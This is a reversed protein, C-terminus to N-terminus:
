PSKEDSNDTKQMETILAVKRLTAQYEAAVKLLEQWLRLTDQWCAIEEQRRRSELDSLARELNGKRKHDPSIPYAICKYVFLQGEVKMMESEISRLNNQKAKEREVILSLLQELTAKQVKLKERILEEALNEDKAPTPSLISSILDFKSKFQSIDEKQQLCYGEPM